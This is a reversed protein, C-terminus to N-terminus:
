GASALPRFSRSAESVIAAEEMCHMWGTRRTVKLFAEQALSRRESNQERVKVRFEWGAM